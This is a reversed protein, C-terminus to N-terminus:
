WPLYDRTGDAFPGVAPLDHRGLQGDNYPVLTPGPSDADLLWVSRDRLLELLQRNHETGLDRAWIVHSHILDAHNYVWEFLVNHRPSYRVFVLQPGPRQQLWHQLRARSLSWGGAPLVAGTSGARDSWSGTARGTVRTGLVILAAVPVLIVFTRWRYISSQSNPALPGTRPSASRWNWIRRLGEVQLFLALGAAPAFYHPHGRNLFFSEVLLLVCTAIALRPWLDRFVCWL